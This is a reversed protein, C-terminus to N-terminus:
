DEWKVWSANQKSSEVVKQVFLMGAVGDRVNPFDLCLEDPTENAIDAMLTLAFNRYLNAFAEINKQMAIKKEEHDLLDSIGHMLSAETLDKEEIM